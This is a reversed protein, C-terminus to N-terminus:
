QGSRVLRVYNIYNKDNVNPSGDIFHVVWATSLRPMSTWYWASRTHPFYGTDIAPDSTGNHVISLLELRTPLRWDNHGCLGAANVANVYAQTNCKGGLTNSCTESGQYGPNSTQSSDYWTYSNSWDRLGSDTTKVEWWLGTTNDKVCAHSGPANLANGSADLATFDFGAAGGGTKPLAGATAAADRGYRPDQGPTTTTSCAVVNGPADYCATQGTDNLAGTQAAALGPLLL